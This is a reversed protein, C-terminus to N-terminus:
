AVPSTLAIIAMGDQYVYSIVMQMVIIIYFAGTIRCAISKADPDTGINAAYNQEAKRAIATAQIKATLKVIRAMGLVTASELGTKQVRIVVLHMTERLVISLAILGM